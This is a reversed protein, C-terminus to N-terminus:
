SWVREDRLCHTLITGLQLGPCVGTGRWFGPQAQLESGRGEPMRGVLGRPPPAARPDSASATGLPGSGGPSSLAASSGTNGQALCLPRCGPDSRPPSAQLGVGGGEGPGGAAWFRMHVGTRRRCPGAPNGGPAQVRREARCQQLFDGNKHLTRRIRRERGGGPGAKGEQLRLESTVQPLDGKRAVRTWTAFRRGRWWGQM